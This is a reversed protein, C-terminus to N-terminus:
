AVMREPNAAKALAAALEAKRTHILPAWLRKEREVLHRIAAARAAGALALQQRAVTVTEPEHTM